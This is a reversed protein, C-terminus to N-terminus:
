KLDLHNELLERVVGEGGCKKVIVVSVAKVRKNADQPAVPYGVVKMVDLDNIDNGVYLTKKLSFSHKKCFKALADRKNPVGYIAEIKLKKARYEVVKNTETSLIIQPVGLERIMDIAFGDGRHCWVAEKGDDFVLVKNNTLVGDFDYVILKIDKIHIKRAM